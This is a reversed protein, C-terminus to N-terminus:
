KPPEKREVLTMGCEPCKDGEAGTIDPHMPCAFVLDTTAHEHGEHPDAMAPAPPMEEDGSTEAQLTPQYPTAAGISAGSDSPDPQSLAATSVSCGSLLTSLAVLWAGHVFSRSPTSLYELAM